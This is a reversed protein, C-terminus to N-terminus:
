RLADVIVPWTSSGERLRMPPTCPSAIKPDGVMAFAEMVEGDISGGLGGVARGQRPRGVAAASREVTSTSYAMTPPSRRRSPWRPRGSRSRRPSSTAAVAAVFAPGAAAFDGMGKGAKDWCRQLALFLVEEFCRRFGLQPATRSATRSLRM